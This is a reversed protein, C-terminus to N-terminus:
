THDGLQARPPAALRLARLEPQTLANAGGRLYKQFLGRYEEGGRDLTNMNDAM